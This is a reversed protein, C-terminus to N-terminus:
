GLAAHLQGALLLFLNGVRVVNGLVDPEIAVVRYLDDAFRQFLSVVHPEFGCVGLGVAAFVVRLCLRRHDAIGLGVPDGDPLDFASPVVEVAAV